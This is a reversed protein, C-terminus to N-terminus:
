SGFWRQWWPRQTGEQAEVTASYPKEREPEHEVTEAAEAAEEHSEAAELEPVRAALAANAQTLQSIIVDRRQIEEARLRLQERLISITEDKSELLAERDVQAERGGETRGEDVWVLVRGNQRDSRLSGRAARKRVAETSTDLLEAAERLDVWRGSM